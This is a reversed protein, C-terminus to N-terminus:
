RLGLAERLAAGIQDMTAPSLRGIIRLIDQQRITILIDGRKM